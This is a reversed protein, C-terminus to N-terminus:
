KNALKKEKVKEYKNKQKEIERKPVAVLNRTLERFRAFEEAKTSNKVTKNM